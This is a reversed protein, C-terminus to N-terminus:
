QDGFIRTFIVSNMSVLAQALSIDAESDIEITNETIIPSVNNGHLLGSGLIIDPFLLDIYGNPSYTKPFTQRGANASDLEGIRSFVSVLNGSEGIEFSKYSSESMEHVSRMSTVGKKRKLGDSVVRDMVKPDRFPTTPRLHVVLDPVEGERSFFDLAHKVFELDTSKDQSILTPRLFPVEAGAKKAVEAYESSNTSVVIRSIENSERAACISWDLLSRDRLTRLNKNTIGKSGSRAPILAVVYPKNLSM